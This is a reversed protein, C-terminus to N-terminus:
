KETKENAFLYIVEILYLSELDPFERFYTKVKIRQNMLPNKANNTYSSLSGSYLPSTVCKACLLIFPPHLSSPNM